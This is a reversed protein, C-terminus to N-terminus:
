FLSPSITAVLQPMGFDELAKEVAAYDVVLAARVLQEIGHQTALADHRWLYIIKKVSDTSIDKSDSDLIISVMKESVPKYLSAPIKNIANM